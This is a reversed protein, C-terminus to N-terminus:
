FAPDLYGYDFPDLVGVEDYGYPLNYYDLAPDFGFGTGYFPYAFPGAGYRTDPQVVISTLEGYENFILDEIFGYAIDDELTVYDDLLNSAKWQGGRTELDDEIRYIRETRGGMAVEDEAAGFGFEGLAGYEEYNGETIPVIIEEVEAGSMRITLRDWPVAMDTGGIDLFEFGAEIIVARIANDPDLLINEVDGIQGGNRGIVEADMLGEATFGGRLDAYDWTTLSVVENGRQRTQGAPQRTQRQQQRAQRQGTAPGILTDDDGDAEIAQFVGLAAMGRNFDTQTIRGDSDRDWAAVDLDVTGEGFWQDFGRDWESVSLVGNGDRDWLQYVGQHFETRDVVGDEDFDLDQLLGRDQAGRVFERETLQGDGDADWQAFMQASATGALLAAPLALATSMAVAKLALAKLPLRIPKRTM